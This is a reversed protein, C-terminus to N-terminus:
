PGSGTTRFLPCSTGCHPQLTDACFHRGFSETQTQKDEVPVPVFIVVDTTIPKTSFLIKLNPLSQIDNQATVLKVRNNSKITVYRHQQQMEPYPKNFRRKKNEIAIADSM